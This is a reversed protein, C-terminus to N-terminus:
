ELIEIDFVEFGVGGTDIVVKAAIPLARAGHQQGKPSVHHVKNIFDDHLEQNRTFLSIDPFREDLSHKFRIDYLDGESTGHTLLGTIYGTVEVRGANSPSSPLPIPLTEFEVIPEIEWIKEGGNYAQWMSNLYEQAAEETEFKGIFFVSPTMNPLIIASRLEIRYEQDATWHKIEVSRCTSLNIWQNDNTKIFM